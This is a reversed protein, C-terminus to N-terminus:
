GSGCGSSSTTSQLTSRWITSGAEASRPPPHRRPWRSRTCCQSIAWGCCVITVDGFQMDFVDTVGFVDCYFQELRDLDDTLIAVHNFGSLM